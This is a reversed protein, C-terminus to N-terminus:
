LLIDFEKLTFGGHRDTRLTKIQYDSQKKVFVKIKKFNEFAESKYKLFYVWSM